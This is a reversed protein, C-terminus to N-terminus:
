HPIVLLLVHLGSTLTLSPGVKSNKKSCVAAWVWRGLAGWPSLSNLARAGREVTIGTDSIYEVGGIISCGAIISVSVLGTLALGVVKTVSIIGLVQGTSITSGDIAWRTVSINTSISILIAVVLGPLSCAFVAFPLGLILVVDEQHHRVMM